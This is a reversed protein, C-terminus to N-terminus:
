SCDCFAEFANCKDCFASYGIKDSNYLSLIGAHTKVANEFNVLATYYSDMDARLVRMSEERESPLFDMLLKAGQKVNDACNDRISQYHLVKLKSADLQKTVAKVRLINTQIDKAIAGIMECTNDLYQLDGVFINDAYHKIDQIKLELTGNLKEIITM